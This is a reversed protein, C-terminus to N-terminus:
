APEGRAVGVWRPVRARYRRYTEGFKAELAREEKPALVRVVVALAVFGVLVPVSGYLIAWGLWLALEGLYMPHRSFAYPGRTMLLKPSWDLPVREPVDALHAFGLVMLWCLVVAGAAVPVLGVLNWVAPGGEAWGHRTALLSVAWPVVGHVLPIAVLWVLPALAFVAWRPIGAAPAPHGDPVEPASM